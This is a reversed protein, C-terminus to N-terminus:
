QGGSRGLSRLATLARLRTQRVYNSDAITILIDVVDQNVYGGEFENVAEVLSIAAEALADNTVATSDREIIARVRTMLEGDMATGLAALARMAETQMTPDPEHHILRALFRASGLDGIAGLIQVAEQRTRRGIPLPERGVIPGFFPAGAAMECLELLYPYGGALNEEGDVRESIADMARLQEAEFRSYIQRRLYNYDVSDVYRSSVSPESMMHPSVGANAATARAHPWYGSPEFDVAYAYTVWTDTPFVVAGYPSITPPGPSSTTRMEWLLRGDSGILSLVNGSITVLVSNGTVNGTVVAPTPHARWAIAGGSTVRSIAGDSSRVYANGTEDVTITEVRGGLDVRWVPELERNLLIVRGALSGVYVGEPAAALTNGVEALYQRGLVLGSSDLRVVYGDSTTCYILGDGALIPSGSVSAGLDAWWVLRGVHTYARLRGSADGVVIVGTPLLLPERLSGAALQRRWLLRGDKNLCLFEGTELGAYISGEAGVAVSGNSRRGLDTRWRMIGNVDLAYLYRDESVFYYDGAANFAGSTLTGGGAVFRWEWEGPRPSEQAPVVAPASLVIFM